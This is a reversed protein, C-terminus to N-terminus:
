FKSLASKLFKEFVAIKKEKEAWRARTLFFLYFSFLLPPHPPCLFGMRTHELDVNIFQTNPLLM